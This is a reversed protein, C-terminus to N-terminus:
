ACEAEVVDGSGFKVKVLRECGVACMDLEVRHGARGRRVAERVQDGACEVEVYFLRDFWLLPIHCSTSLIIRMISQIQLM